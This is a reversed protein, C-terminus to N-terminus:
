ISEIQVLKAMQRLSLVNHPFPLLHNHCCMKEKGWCHKKGKWFGFRMMKAINLKEKVFRYALAIRYMTYASLITNCEGM